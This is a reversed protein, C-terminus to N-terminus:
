LSSPGGQPPGENRTRLSLTKTVLDEVIARQFSAVLNLTKADCLQLYDELKPKQQSAIM